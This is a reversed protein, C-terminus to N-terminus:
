QHDSFTTVPTAKNLIQFFNREMQSGEELADM